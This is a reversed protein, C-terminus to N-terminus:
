RLLAATTVVAFVLAEAQLLQQEYGNKIMYGGDNYCEANPKERKEELGISNSWGLVNYLGAFGSNGLVM